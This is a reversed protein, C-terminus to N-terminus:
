KKRYQLYLCFYWFSFLVFSFIPTVLAAAPKFIKEFTATAIIDKKMVVSFSQKSHSWDGVWGIFKWGKFATIDVQVEKGEAYKGAGSVKGSIPPDITIKLEYKPTIGAM